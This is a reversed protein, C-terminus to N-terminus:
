DMAKHRSIILLWHRLNPPSQSRRRRRHGSPHINVELTGRSTELLSAPPSSRSVHAAHCPSPTLRYPSMWDNGRVWKEAHHRWICCSWSSSSSSSRISEREGRERESVRKSESERWVMEEQHQRQSTGTKNGGADAAGPHWSGQLLLQRLCKGSCLRYGIGVRSRWKSLCCWVRNM